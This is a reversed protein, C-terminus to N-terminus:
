GSKRVDLYSPCGNVRKHLVRIETRSLAVPNVSGDSAFIWGSDYSSEFLYSFTDPAFQLTDSRKPIGRKLLQPPTTRDLLFNAIHLDEKWVGQFVAFEDVTINESNRRMIGYEVFCSACECEDIIVCEM